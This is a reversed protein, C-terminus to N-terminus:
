RIANASPAAHAEAHAWRSGGRLATGEPLTAVGEVLTAVGEGPTPAGLASGGASAGAPIAAGVIAHGLPM